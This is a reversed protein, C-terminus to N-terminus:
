QIQLQLPLRIPQLQEVQELELRQRQYVLRLLDHVELDSSVDQNALDLGQNV